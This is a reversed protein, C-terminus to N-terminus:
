RNINNFINYIDKIKKEDVTISVKVFGTPILPMVTEENVRVPVQITWSSMNFTKIEERLIKNFDKKYWSLIAIDIEKKKKENLKKRVESILENLEYAKVDVLVFNASNEVDRTFVETTASSSKFMKDIAKRNDEELVDYVYLNKPDKQIKAIQVDVECFAKAMILNNQYVHYLFINLCISILLFFGLIGRM